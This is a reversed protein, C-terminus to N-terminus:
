KKRKSTGSMEMTTMLGSKEKWCWEITDNDVFHMCGQATSEGFPGRTRADVCFGDANKCPTAWGTGNGGWDDIWFTRFKKAQADWSWAEAGKFTGMDGMTFTGHNVLYWGDGDWKTENTGTSKLEQDLGAMKCTGTFEWKGVLRNLKDLEAPKKPRMQKMTELDMKPMCGSLLAGLVSLCVVSGFRRLTM